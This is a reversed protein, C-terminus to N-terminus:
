TIYLKILLLLLVEVHSIKAVILAILLAIVSRLVYSDIFIEAIALFYLM